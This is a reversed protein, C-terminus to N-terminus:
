KVKHICALDEGVYTPQTGQAQVKRTQMVTLVSNSKLKPPPNSLVQSVKQVNFLNKKTFLLHVPYLKQKPHHFQSIQM